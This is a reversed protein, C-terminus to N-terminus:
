QGLKELDHKDHDSVSNGYEEPAKIIELLVSNQKEKDWEDPIYVRAQPQVRFGGNNGRILVFKYGDHKAGLQQAKNGHANEHSLTDVLSDEDFGLIEMAIRAETLTDVFVTADTLDFGKEVAERYQEENLAYEKASSIKKKIKTEINELSVRDEM